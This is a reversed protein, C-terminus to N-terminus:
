ERRDSTFDTYEQRLFHLTRHFSEKLLAAQEVTSMPILHRPMHILAFSILAYVMATWEEQGDDDERHRALDAVFAARDPYPVLWFVYDFYLGVLTDLVHPPVQIKSDSRRESRPPGPKRRVHKFTGTQALKKCFGVLSERRKARSVNSTAASANSEKLETSRFSM